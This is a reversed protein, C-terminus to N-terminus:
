SALLTAGAGIPREINPVIEFHDAAHTALLHAHRTAFPRRIDGGTARAIADWDTWASVTVFRSPETVALYLSVLGPNAEGDALTGQHAAAVYRELEGERVQGHFVRLVRSPEDRSYAVGFRIPAVELSADGVLEIGASALLAGEDM